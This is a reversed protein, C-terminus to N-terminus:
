LRIALVESKFNESGFICVSGKGQISINQGCNFELVDKVFERKVGGEKFILSWFSASPWKSVILAGIGGCALLHFVTKSVLHIPPVLWNNTAHWNQSFADVAECDYDFFPSNYRFM